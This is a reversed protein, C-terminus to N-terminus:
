VEGLSTREYFDRLVREVGAEMQEFTFRGEAYWERWDALMTECREEATAANYASSSYSRMGNAWARMRAARRDDDATM